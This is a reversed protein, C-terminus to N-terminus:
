IIGNRIAIAIAMTRNAASLKQTAHLIYRNVTNASVQLIMAVEDTTKGESVWLLCERERDSLPDAFLGDSKGDNLRSWLHCCLLQAQPLAALDLAAPDSASLLLMGAASGAHVRASVFAALDFSALMEPIEGPLMGALDATALCTFDAPRRAGLPAAGAAAASAALAELGGIEVRVPPWTSAVIGTPEIAHLKPMDLLLYRDAGVVASLREMIRAVDGLSRAASVSPFLDCIKEAHTKM